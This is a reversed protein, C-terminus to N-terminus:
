FLPLKDDENRRNTLYYKVCPTDSPSKFKWLHPCWFQGVTNEVGIHLHGCNGCSAVMKIIKPKCDECVPRGHFKESCLSGCMICILAITEM